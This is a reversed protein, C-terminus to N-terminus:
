ALHPSRTWSRMSSRRRRPSQARRERGKQAWRTALPPRRSTSLSSPRCNGRKPCRTYDLFTGSIVQGDRDYIVEEYLAQSIGQALSGHTQAATLEHNVVRGCDDVAMYRLVKVEGTDRDIEVVALHAGSAFTASPPSFSRWAALGMIPVGNVPNPPERQILAPDEEV